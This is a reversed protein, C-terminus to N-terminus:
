IVTLISRATACEDIRAVANASRAALGALIAGIRGAAGATVPAITRIARQARGVQDLRDGILDGGGIFRDRLRRHSAKVGCQCRCEGGRRAGCGDTADINAARRRIRRERGRQRRHSSGHGGLRALGSSGAPDRSDLQCGFRCVDGRQLHGSICCARGAQAAIGAVAASAASAGEAKAAARAARAAIAPSRDARRGRKAAIAAIAAIAPAAPKAAAAAHAAIAAKITVTATINRGAVDTGKPARAARGPEAATDSRRRVARGVTGAAAASRTKAAGDEHGIAARQVDGAIRCKGAVADKASRAGIAALGALGGAAVQEHHGARGDVEIGTLAVRDCEVPGDGIVAPRADCPGADGATRARTDGDLAAPHDEVPGVGVGAPGGDGAAHQLGIVAGANVIAAVDVKGAAHQLGRACEVPKQACRGVPGLPGAAAAKGGNAAIQRNPQVAAGAQCPALAAKDRVARRQQEPGVAGIGIDGKDVADIQGPARSRDDVIATGVTAIPRDEGADQGIAPQHEAVACGFAGDHQRPSIGM